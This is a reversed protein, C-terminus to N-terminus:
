QLYLHRMRGARRGDAGDTLVGSPAAMARVNAAVAVRKRRPTWDPCRTPIIRHGHFSSTINSTAHSGAIVLTGRRAASHPAVFRVATSFRTWYRLASRAPYVHKVIANTRVHSRVHRVSTIYSRALSADQANEARFLLSGISRTFAVAAPEVHGHLHTDVFLASATAIQKDRTAIEASTEGKSVCVDRWTRTNIQNRFTDSSFTTFYM